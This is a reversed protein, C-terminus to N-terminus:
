RWPGWAWANGQMARVPGTWRPEGERQARETLACLQPAVRRSEEAAAAGGEGWVFLMGQAEMIPHAVACARRSSAAAAEAEASAAQLTLAFRPRKDARPRQHAGAPKWGLAAAAHLGGDALALVLPASVACCPGSAGLALRRASAQPIAKCAGDEGFRWGHYSCMLSGDSWVKGESLPVARHPCRNLLPLECDSEHICVPLTFLEM